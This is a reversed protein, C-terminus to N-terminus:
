ERDTKKKKKGILWNIAYLTAVFGILFGAFTAFVTMM